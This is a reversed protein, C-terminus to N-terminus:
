EIMANFMMTGDEMMEYDFDIFLEYGLHNAKILVRPELNHPKIQSSRNDSLIGSISFLRESHVSTTLSM